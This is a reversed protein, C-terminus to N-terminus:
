VPITGVDADEGADGTLASRADDRDLGARVVAWVEGLTAKQEASLPDLLLRRVERSHTRRAAQLRAQGAATLTAVVVRGDEADAVRRVLRQAVLVDVIRTLGSRSLMALQALESMRLAGGRQHLKFLVEYEVLPMGHTAVLYADLRRMLRTHIELFGGWAALDAPPLLPGTGGAGGPDGTGPRPVRHAPPDAPVMM